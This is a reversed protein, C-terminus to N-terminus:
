EPKVLTVTVVPTQLKEGDADAHQIKDGWKKPNWKALLKLDTEIILKDRQVDGTSDGGEESGKGRATQRMRFGISQEGEERARAIVRSIDEDGAMWNRVTDDCPMGDDRCIHTLPEGQGMRFGIEQLKEATYSSPRGM